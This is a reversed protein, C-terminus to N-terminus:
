LIRHAPRSHRRDVRHAVTHHMGPRAEVPVLLDRIFYKMIELLRHRKGREVIGCRDGQDAFHDLSKGLRPVVGAEVRDKV